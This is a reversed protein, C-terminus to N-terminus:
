IDDGEEDDGVDYNFWGMYEEVSFTTSAFHLCVDYLFNGDTHCQDVLSEALIAAQDESLDTEFMAKTM